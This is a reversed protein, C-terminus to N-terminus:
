KNACIVQVLRTYGIKGEVFANAANIVDSHAAESANLESLVEGREERGYGGNVAYNLVISQYHRGAKTKELTPVGVIEWGSALPGVARTGDVWITKKDYKIENM